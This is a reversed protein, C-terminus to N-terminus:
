FDMNIKIEQVLTEAETPEQEGSAVLRPEAPGQEAEVYDVARQLTDLFRTFDEKYLYVKHKELTWKADDGEGQTVKKSETIVLYMEDKRTKKVDIYYIRQGAKVTQSYLIDNEMNKKGEKEMYMKM